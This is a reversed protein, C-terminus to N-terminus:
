RTTPWGVAAPRSPLRRREVGLWAKTEPKAFLLGPPNRTRARDAEQAGRRRVSTLVRLCRVGDRWGIKKGEEVSRSYYSIPVEFPRIGRMLLKATLETDLGFGHEHLDLDRFLETPLLKLCTHLDSLHADFLVNAALTLARNGVAHRFSQYRTNIGFMRTGYVVECRGEVVPQFMEILDRPDYELDSDFPVIHTGTAHEAGTVLAAGKGLNQRHTVARLSQHRMGDIIPETLDVSGDNIVILELDFPFEVALVARIARALTREENYAPM